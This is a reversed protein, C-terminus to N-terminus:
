CTRLAIPEGCYLCHAHEIEAPVLQQRGCAQCRQLYDTDHGCNPCYHDDEALRRACYPCHLEEPAPDGQGEPSAADAPGAQSPEANPQLPALEAAADVTEHHSDLVSPTPASARHRAYLVMFTAVLLLGGATLLLERWSTLMGLSFFGLYIALLLGARWSTARWGATRGLYVLVLASVLALALAAALPLAITGSLFTLLPYFLALGCGILLYSTVRLRIDSLYLVAALSALFAATLFPAWGGLLRYDDQLAAVRQAFSLTTPLDLRIDRDAILLPYHWTWVEGEATVDHASAPLSATSVQSGSLGDVQVVVDVDARQEHQLGYSFSSAGSARYSVEIQHEQGPELTAKWSIGQTSYRADPPEAGDVTFRVEHLTDLNRPFPFFLAITAGMGESRALRYEGRFDLDYTTVSVGGQEEQRAVLTARVRSDQGPLHMPTADGGPLVVNWTPALQAVRRADNYSLFAREEVTYVHEPLDSVLLLYTALLGVLVLLLSGNILILTGRKLTVM